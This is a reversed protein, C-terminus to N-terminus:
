GPLMVRGGSVVLSQGTIFSAENSLLFRVAAAIEEPTGLRGMPTNSIRDTGSPWPTTPLHDPPLLPPRKRWGHCPTEHSDLQANETAEPQTTKAADSEWHLWIM